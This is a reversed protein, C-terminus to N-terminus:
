CFMGAPAAAPQGFQFVGPGSAAPAATTAPAAPTQGFSFAGAAPAPTSTAPQGAGKFSFAGPATNSQSPTAVGSSGGFSFSGGPNAGFVSNSSGSATGSATTSPSQPFISITTTAPKAPTTTGFNFGGPNGTAAPTAPKTGGLIPNTGASFSVQKQAATTGFAPLSSSSSGNNGVSLAANGFTSQATTAPPATLGFPSPAPASTTLALPTNSTTTTSAGFAPPQSGFTPLASQTTNPTAASGFSFGGASTASPTASAALGSSLPKAPTSQAAPQGFSFSNTGATGTKFVYM